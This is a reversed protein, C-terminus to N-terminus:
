ETVETMEVLNFSVNVVRPDNSLATVTENIQQTNLVSYVATKISPFIELETLGYDSKIMSLLAADEYQILINLDTLEYTGNPMEVAKFSTLNQPAYSIYREGNVAVKYKGVRQFSENVIQNEEDLFVRSSLLVRENLVEASKDSYVIQDAPIQKTPILYRDAFIVNLVVIAIVLLIIRMIKM